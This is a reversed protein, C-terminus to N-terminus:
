PVRRASSRYCRSAILVIYIVSSKHYKGRRDWAVDSCRMVLVFLQIIGNKWIDAKKQREPRKAEFKLKHEGKLDRGSTSVCTEVWTPLMRHVQDRWFILAADERHKKNFAENEIIYWLLAVGLSVCEHKHLHDPERHRLDPWWPPQSLGGEGQERRHKTIRGIKTRDDSLVYPWKKQKDPEIFKIAAKLIPKLVSQPCQALSKEMINGIAKRDDLRVNRRILGDNTSSLRHGSQRPSSVPVATRTEMPSMRIYPSTSALQVAMSPPGLPELSDLHQSNTAFTSPFAISYNNDLIAPLEREDQQSAHPKFNSSTWSWLDSMSTRVTSQEEGERVIQIEEGADLWMSSHPTTIQLRPGSRKLGAQKTQINAVCVPRGVSIMSWISGVVVLNTANERQFTLVEGFSAAVVSQMSNASSRKTQGDLPIPFHDIAKGMNSSRHIEIGLPPKASSSPTSLYCSVQERTTQLIM